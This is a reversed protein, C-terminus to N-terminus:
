GHGTQGAIPVNMGTVIAHLSALDRRDDTASSGYGPELVSRVCSLGSLITPPRVSAHRVSSLRKGSSWRSVTAPSASRPSVRCTAHGAPAVLDVLHCRVGAHGV